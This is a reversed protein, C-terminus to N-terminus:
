SSHHSTRASGMRRDFELWISVIYVLLFVAIMLEKVEGAEIDLPWPVGGISKEMIKEPISALPAILAAPVCIIGPMVAAKFSEDNYTNGRALNVLPLIAGGILIMVALLNRPLQDLLSGALDNSNHLNTEGQNNIAQWSDPTNWGFLHQGWSAEEGGFYLCGLCFCALFFRITNDGLTWARYLVGLGICLAVGLALVTAVETFGSEKEIIRTYTSDALLWRAVFHGFYLTVPLWLWFWQPVRSTDTAHM